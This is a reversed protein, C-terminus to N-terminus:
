ITTPLRRNGCGTRHEQLFSGELFPVAAVNDFQAYASPAMGSSVGGMSATRPSVPVNLFPLAASEQASAGAAPLLVAAAVAAM